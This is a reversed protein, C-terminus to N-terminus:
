RSGALPSPPLPPPPTWGRVELEGADAPAQESGALDGLPVRTTAGVPLWVQGGPHLVGDKAGPNTTAVPTWQLSRGTLRVHLNAEREVNPLVFVIPTTIGTAAALRRYGDLKGVVRSHNETGTDYEVFFDVRRQQGATDPGRWRGYADPRAHRGWWHTCTREGWWRELCADPDRRTATALAVYLDNVGLTHPLTLRAPPGLRRIPRDATSLLSAGVSGLLYHAPASGTLLAPRFRDLVQLHTLATLRRQANRPGDFALATLQPTTLVRHEHLAAAIWRDRATVHLGPRSAPRRPAPM